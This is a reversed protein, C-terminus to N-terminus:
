APERLRPVLREIVRAWSEDRSQRFLRVSPYWPMDEGSIGYRWEPVSPVLAACPRGLAGTLHVLSTCVSVVGDLAAVLAATEDYDPIVEPLHPLEVGHRERLAALDAAVDGYQLSIFSVGARRALLAVDDVGLSRLRARTEATGGRWSLAFWPGAGLTRLRGRWYSVRVPDPSLYGTHRPFASEARRFVPPLGGALIEVDADALDRNRTTAEDHV